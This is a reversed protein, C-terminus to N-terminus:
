ITEVEFGRFGVLLPDDGARREPDPRAAFAGIWAMGGPDAEEAGGGEPLVGGEPDLFVWPVKRLLVPQGAEDVHHVLLANGKRVLEVTTGIEYGLQGSSSSSFPAGGAGSGRLVHLSWDCWQGPARTVVSLYVAGDKAELGAKVWSTSRDVTHADPPQQKQHDSSSASSPLVFVLGAHDYQQTPTYVLSVRAARFSPPPVAPHYTVPATFVHRPRPAPSAHIDTQSVTSISFRDPDFQSPPSPPPPQNVHTYQPTPGAM